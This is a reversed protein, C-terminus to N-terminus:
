IFTEMCEKQLRQYTAPVNALGVHMMNFGFFGVPRATFTNCHKHDELIEIPNYGSKMDLVTLYWNGSLLNLTEEVRPLVYNDRITKSNLQRYDVCM